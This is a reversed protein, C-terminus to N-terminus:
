DPQNQPGLTRVRETRGYPFAPPAPPTLRTVILREFQAMIGLYEVAKVKVVNEIRRAGGLNLTPAFGYIEGASLPGLKALAPPFLDEGKEDDVSGLRLGMSITGGIIFDDDFWDGNAEQFSKAPPCFITMSLPDISIRKHVPHWVFLEGFANYSVVLMDKPDFEADDAFVADIVPKFPAPDCIWWFGNLYSGRGHNVWFDLLANPLRGKYNAAEERSVLKANEPEGHKKLM